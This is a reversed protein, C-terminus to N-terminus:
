SFLGTMLRKLDQWTAFMFIAALVAIGLRLGYEQLREGAPRGRLWEVAYFLLHGGDLVPIPFLNILGLNLSLFAAFLVVEIIGQEAMKGSMRAIGIPGSLDDASRQGVVMEGLAKVTMGTLSVVKRGAAIVASVPGHRRIEPAGRSVGIRGIRRTNGFLDQAEVTRPTVALEREQGDRLVVIQLQRGPSQEIVQQLEEFSEIPTGDVRLIRDGPQFGAAAAASDPVVGSIEAPTFREGVTAFLVALLVIALLFNALPGAAVIAARQGLPKYHFAMAREAPTMQRLFEGPDSAPGADGFFKVYGGLPLWGIKWRTGLRDTWGVLERGFGISFTDVRVGYWRAVLFHGLEHVFVLVTLVVVFSGAYNWVSALTTAVM